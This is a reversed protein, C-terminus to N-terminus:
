IAKLVGAKRGTRTERTGVIEVLREAKLEACRASASQHSLGLRQELEDCTLGAPAKRLAELIAARDKAKSSAGPNAAKSQENGGHRTECIDFLPGLSQRQGYGRETM